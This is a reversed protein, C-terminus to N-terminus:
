MNVGLFSNAVQDNYKKLKKCVIFARYILSRGATFGTKFYVGSFKAIQVQTVSHGGSQQLQQM